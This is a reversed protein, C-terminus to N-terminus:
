RIWSSTEVVSGYCWLTARTKLGCYCFGLVSGLHLPDLFQNRGGLWLVLATARTKLGCCVVGAGLGLTASGPVPKPWRALAGFGYRSDKSRLM